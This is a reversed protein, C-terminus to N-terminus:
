LKELVNGVFAHLTGSFGFVMRCWYKLQRQFSLFLFSFLFFLPLSESMYVTRFQRKERWNKMGPFVSMLVKGCSKKSLPWRNLDVM